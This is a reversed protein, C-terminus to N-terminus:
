ATIVIANPEEAKGYICYKKIVSRRYAPFKGKNIEDRIASWASIIDDLPFTREQFSLHMRRGYILYLSYCGFLCMQLISSGKRKFKVDELMYFIRHYTKRRRPFRDFANMAALGDLIEIPLRLYVQNDVIFYNM